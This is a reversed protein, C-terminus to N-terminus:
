KRCNNEKRLTVATTPPASLLTQLDIGCYDSITLLQSLTFDHAGIEMTQVVARTVGLQEGVETFTLPGRKMYLRLGIKQHVESLPKLEDLRPRGGKASKKRIGNERALRWITYADRGYRKGIEAFSANEGELEIDRLASTKWDDM